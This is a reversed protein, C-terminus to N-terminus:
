MRDLLRYHLQILLFPLKGLAIEKESSVSSYAELRSVAIICWDRQLTRILQGCPRAIIIIIIGIFIICAFLTRARWLQSCQSACCCGVGSKEEVCLWLVCGYHEFPYSLPPHPIIPLNRNNYRFNTGKELQTTLEKELVSTFM